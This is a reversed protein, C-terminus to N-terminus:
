GSEACRTGDHGPTQQDSDEGQAAVPGRVDGVRRDGRAAGVRDPADPLARLGGSRRTRSQSQGASPVECRQLHLRGSRRIRMGREIIDTLLQGARGVFPEGREDEDAGPGEGVFMLRAKRTAWASCWTPAARRSSAARAIASLSACRKSAKPRKWVQTFRSCSAATQPRTKVHHTAPKAAPAPAVASAPQAPAAASQAPPQFPVGEFGEEKLQELYDSISDMLVRRDVLNSDQSMVAAAERNQRM